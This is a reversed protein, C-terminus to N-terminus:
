DSLQTWSKALGHVIAWWDGKDVSNELCSYQLPCGHGGGLSGGSGPISGTDGVNVLRCYVCTFWVQHIGINLMMLKLPWRRGALRVCGEGTNSGLCVVVQLPGTKVKGARMCTLALVKREQHVCEEWFRQSGLGSPLVSFWRGLIKACRMWTWFEDGTM